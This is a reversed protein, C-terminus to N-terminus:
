KINRQNLKKNRKIRLLLSKRQLKLNLPEFVMIFLVLLMVGWVHYGYGGMSFFETVSM